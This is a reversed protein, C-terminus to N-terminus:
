THTSSHLYEYDQARLAYHHLDRGVRPRILVRRAGLGKPSPPEGDASPLLEEVAREQQKLDTLVRCHKKGLAAAAATSTFNLEAEPGRRERARCLKSLPSVANSM